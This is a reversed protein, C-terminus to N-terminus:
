GGEPGRLRPAGYERLAGYERPAWAITDDALRELVTGLASVMGHVINTYVCSSRMRLTLTRSARVSIARRRLATSAPSSTTM